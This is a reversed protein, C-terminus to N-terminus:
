PQKSVIRPEALQERLSNNQKELERALPALEQHVAEYYRALAAQGFGNYRNMVGSICREVQSAGDFDFDPFKAAYDQKTRNVAM